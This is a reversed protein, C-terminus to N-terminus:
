GNVVETIYRSKRESFYLKEFRERNFDVNYECLVAYVADACDLELAFEEGNKEFWLEAVDSCNLDTIFQEELYLKQEVGLDIWSYTATLSNLKTHYDDSYMNQIREPMSQIRRKVTIPTETGSFETLTVGKRNASKIIAIKCSEITKNTDKERGSSRKYIFVVDGVQFKQKFLSIKETTPIYEREGNRFVVDSYFAEYGLQAVAQKDNPLKIEVWNDLARTYTSLLYLNVIDWNNSTKTVYIDAKEFDLVLKKPTSYLLKNITIYALFNVYVDNACIGKFVKLNTYNKDTKFDFVWETHSKECYIVEQKSFDYEYRKVGEPLKGERFNHGIINESYYCLYDYYYSDEYKSLDIGDLSLVYGEKNLYKALCAIYYIEVPTEIQAISYIQGLAIINENEMKLVELM